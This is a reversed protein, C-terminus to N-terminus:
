RKEVCTSSMKAAGIVNETSDLAAGACSEPVCTKHCLLSSDHGNIHMFVSIGPVLIASEATKYRSDYPNTAAFTSLVM